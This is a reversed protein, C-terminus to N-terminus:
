ICFVEDEMKWRRGEIEGTGQTWGSKLNAVLADLGGVRTDVHRALTAGHGLQPVLRVVHEGAQVGAGGIQHRHAGPGGLAETM